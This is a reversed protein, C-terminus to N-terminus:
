SRRAFFFGRPLVAYEQRPSPEAVRFLLSTPEAPSAARSVARHLSSERRPLSVLDVLQRAHAGM